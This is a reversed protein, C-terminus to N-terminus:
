AHTPAYDGPIHRFAYHTAFGQPYLGQFKARLTHLRWTFFEMAKVIYSNKNRVM